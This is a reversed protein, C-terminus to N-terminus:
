SAGRGLATSGACLRPALDAAASGRWPARLVREVLLRKDARALSTHSFRVQENGEPGVVYAGQFRDDGLVREWLAFLPLPRSLSACLSGGHTRRRRESRDLENAVALLHAGFSAQADQYAAYRQPDPVDTMVTFARQRLEAGLPDGPQAMHRVLYGELLAHFYAECLDVTLDLVPRLELGNLYAPGYLALRDPSGGRGPLYEAPVSARDEHFSVIWREAAERAFGVPLRDSTGPDALHRDIAGPAFASGAWLSVLM